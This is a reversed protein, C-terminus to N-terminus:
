EHRGDKNKDRSDALKLERHKRGGASRYQASGGTDQGRQRSAGSATREREGAERARRRAAAGAEASDGGRSASKSKPRQAVATKASAAARSSRSKSGGNASVHREVRATSNGDIVVLNDRRRQASTRVDTHFSVSLILGVLILTALLSSGGSSVFPLPKGTVPFFGISCAINILAQLGIVGTAGGVIARGQLTSADMAIRSGAWVFVVFCLLVFFAGIFGLEECIISFIFDTHAEPLYNYKQFSNGLGVGTFGGSSVAYLSNIIQYGDDTPDDFPHLFTTFRELRYPSSAIGIVGLVCVLALGVLLMKWNVGGFWLTILAAAFVIITTGLDPQLYILVCPAVVVVAAKVLFWRLQMGRAEYESILAALALIVVIKAFESPQFTFGGISMWRQAGLGVYGAMSTFALLAMVIGWPLWCGIRTLWIDYPVRAAIACFICGIVIWEFQRVLYYTPDNGESIAEVSSASYIMVLGILMLVLASIILMARSFLVQRPTESARSRSTDRTAVATKAASM